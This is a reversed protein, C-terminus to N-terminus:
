ASSEDKGSKITRYQILIAKGKETLRWFMGVGGGKTNLPQIEIIETAMFEQYRQDTMHVRQSM